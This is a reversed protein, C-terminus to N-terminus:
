FNRKNSITAFISHVCRLMNEVLTTDNEPMGVILISIDYFKINLISLIELKSSEVNSVM